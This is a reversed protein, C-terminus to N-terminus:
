NGNLLNLIFISFIHDKKLKPIRPARSLPLSSPWVIRIGPSIFDLLLNPERLISLITQEPHAELVHLFVEAFNLYALNIIFEM